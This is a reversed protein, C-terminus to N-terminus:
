PTVDIDRDSGTIKTPVDCNKMCPNAFIPQADPRPDPMLFGGHNPMEIEGINAHNLEYEADIIDNM